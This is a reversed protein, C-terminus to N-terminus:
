PDTATITFRVTGHYEAADLPGDPTFCPCAPGYPEVMNNWMEHEPFEIVFPDCTWSEAYVTDDFGGNGRLCFNATLTAPNGCELRFIMTIDCWTAEGTWYPQCIVGMTYHMTLNCTQGTIGSFSGTGTATLTLDVPYLRAVEIDDICGCTCALCLHDHDSSTDWHRYVAFNDYRVMTTGGNGLGMAYYGDDPGLEIPDVGEVVVCCKETDSNTLCYLLAVCLINKGDYSVLIRNGATIPDYLGVLGVNTTGMPTSVGGRREWLSLTGPTYGGPGRDYEAWFCDGTTPNFDLYVRYIRNLEDAVTDVLVTHAPNAHRFPSLILADPTGDDPMHAYLDAAIEPEGASDPPWTWKEALCHQPNGPDLPDSPGYSITGWRGARATWGNGVETTYDDPDGPYGAGLIYATGRNFRDQYM